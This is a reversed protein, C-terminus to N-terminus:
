FAQYSGLANSDDSNVEMGTWLSIENFQIRERDVGGFVMAGLRGNGVPLAETMWSKAPRDYWLQMSARGRAVKPAPSSNAAAAPHLVGAACIGICIAVLCSRYAM